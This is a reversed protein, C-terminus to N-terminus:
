SADSYECFNTHGTEKAHEQAGQQGILGTNCVMCRLDFGALNTYQRMEKLEQAIAKVESEVGVELTPYFLRQVEGNPANRVLADYHLGDFIVLICCPADVDVPNGSYKYIITTMIDVAWIDVSLAKSLISMEIEGGWKEVNQIWQKYESPPKGLFAETYTEADEDITDAILKRYVNTADFGPGEKSYGIANFLCSNDAAIIHRDIGNTTMGGFVSTAVKEEQVRIPYAGGLQLAISEGSKIGLDSLKTSSAGSLGRPPFGVRLGYEKDLGLEKYIKDVLMQLTANDDELTMKASHGGGSVKLLM